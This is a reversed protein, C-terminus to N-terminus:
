CSSIRSIKISGDLFEIKGQLINWVNATNYDYFYVKKGNGVLGARWDQPDQLSQLEQQYNTSSVGFFINQVGSQLIADRIHRDNDKLSAGFVILNTDNLSCLMNYCHNLYHNSRIMVLKESASGATVCLPYRKTNDIINSIHSLIPINDGQIKIVEGKDYFLHLAGHLFYFNKCYYYGNHNYNYNFILDYNTKCFGDAFSWELSMVWYLLLDYNLTFINNYDKIFDFASTKQMDDVSSIHTDRITEIFSNKLNESFNDLASIVDGFANNNLQTFHQLLKTTANVIRMTEEIDNKNRQLNHCVNYIVSNASIMQQTLNSLNFNPNCAISFGNGLLLSSTGNYQILAKVEDYTLLKPLCSNM